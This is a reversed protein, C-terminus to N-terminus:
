PWTSDDCSRVRNSGYVAVYRSCREVENRLPIPITVHNYQSYLFSSCYKTLQKLLVCQLIFVENNADQVFTRGTKVEVTEREIWRTSTDVRAKCASGCCHVFSVDSILSTAPVAVVQQGRM